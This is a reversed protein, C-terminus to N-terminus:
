LKIRHNNLSPFYFYFTIAAFILSAITNSNMDTDAERQLICWEIEEEFGGTKQTQCQFSDSPIIKVTIYKQYNQSNYFDVV